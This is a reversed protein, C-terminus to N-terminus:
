FQNNMTEPKPGPPRREIWYSPAERDFGLSLPRKGLARMALGMPTVVLYFLLGMVLPNVIKHLLLGFKTWVKNLPALSRPAALALVLFVAAVALAWLRVAGGGTLPWLSVIAFVVAFVLGFGRNSSGQIVEERELREHTARQDSM